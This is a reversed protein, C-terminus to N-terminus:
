VIRLTLTAGTSVRLKKAADGRRVSIELLGNSGRVLFPKGSPAEDYTRFAGRVTTGAIRASWDGPTREPLRINTIVNGFRDVHLVFGKVAAGGKGPADTFLPRPALPPAARAISSIRAGGALRAAAPAFVDRGHFTASVQDRRAPPLLEYWREGASGAAIHDLLGNGPAIFTRGARELLVVPRGTGVGPDVVCVFITGKPFFEEVCTLVYAASLVDHRPVEHTVDTILAGPFRAYVVGKMAAVYPDGAGFDTLLAIPRTAM